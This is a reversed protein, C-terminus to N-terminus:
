FFNLVFMFYTEQLRRRLEGVILFVEWHLWPSAEEIGGFLVLFLVFFVNGTYLHMWWFYFQPRIADWVFFVFLVINLIYQFIQELKNKVPSYCNLRRNTLQKKKFIYICCLNFSSFAVNCRYLLASYCQENIYRYDDTRFYKNRYM